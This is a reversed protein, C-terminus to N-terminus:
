GRGRPPNRNLEDSQRSVPAREVAESSLVNLQSSCGDHCRFSLQYLGVLTVLPIDAAVIFAVELLFHVYTPRERGISSGM